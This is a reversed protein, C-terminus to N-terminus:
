RAESRLRDFEERPVPVADKEGLVELPVRHTERASWAAFAAIVNIGLCLGGVVLPVNASGPPAALTFISPLFATITLGVNQAIAFGTVRTRAPFLEQYYAAFTANCIQYFIGWTLIALVITLVVDGRSVSWLYAFSLVGSGLAGVIMLPRRGFRDSLSAFWPIFPLAVLNAVVPIWLYVSTSMEIGYGSQTAYAAGFVSVVVGIVNVLTMCIARLVDTGSERMVQVFPARVPANEAKTFVETEEVRRRIVYGAFVVVASLLFPIRWGWSDFAQESLVASLPLFVAAAIIQGAQTGHLSFSTYYGRRGFPAHEAIMASAGSLEGAVAFGQAFRLLVLLVPAWLGVQHYTPLLAVAFTSLGMLLMALVLVNKRGHRDGYHGFLIAGIPRAVYGVAYTGLSSVLAVTPNGSPFFISPFILAAAQAYVFWDYYELASGIWGSAAARRSRSRSDDTRQGSMRTAM